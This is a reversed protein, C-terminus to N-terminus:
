GTRQLCCRRYRPARAPYTMKMMKKTSRINSEQPTTSFSNTPQQNGRWVRAGVWWGRVGEKGGCVSYADRVVSGLKLRGHGAEDLKATPGRNTVTHLTGVLLEVSIAAGVDLPHHNHDGVTVRVTARVRRNGRVGGLLVHRLDGDELDRDAGTDILNAHAGPAGLRRRVVVDKGGVKGGQVGDDLREDVIGALYKTTKKKGEM